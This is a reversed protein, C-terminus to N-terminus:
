SQTLEIKSKTAHSTFRSLSLPPGCRQTNCQEALGCERLFREAREDIVAVLDNVDECRGIRRGAFGIWERGFRAVHADWKTLRFRELVVSGELMEFCQVGIQRDEREDGQYHGLSNEVRRTVLRNAKM